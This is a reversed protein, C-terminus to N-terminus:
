LYIGLTSMLKVNSLKVNRVYKGKQQQQWLGKLKEEWTYKYIAGDAVCPKEESSELYINM